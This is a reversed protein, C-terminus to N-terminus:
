SPCIVTIFELPAGIYPGIVRSVALRSQRRSKGRRARCRRDERNGGVGEGRRGKDMSNNMTNNM